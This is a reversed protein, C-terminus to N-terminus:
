NIQVQVTLQSIADPGVRLVAPLCFFTMCDFVAFQKEELSDQDEAADPKVSKIFIFEFDTEKTMSHVATFPLKFKQVGQGLKAVLPIVAIDSGPLHIARKCALVPNQLKGCLLIQIERQVGCSSEEGTATTSLSTIKNEAFAAHRQAGAAM